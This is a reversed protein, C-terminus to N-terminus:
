WEVKVTDSDHDHESQFSILVTDEPFETRHAVGPGTFVMQGPGYMRDNECKERYRMQGSVVLLHHWGEKHQHNSRVSGAKSFIISTKAANHIFGREDYFTTM